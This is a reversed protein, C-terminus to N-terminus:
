ADASRTTFAQDDSLFELAQVLLAGKKPDSLLKRANEPSFPYVAGGFKFESWGLLRDVVFAINRDRVAAVSEEPATWKKGNVRAQEQEHERHLRERSMRNRQEITKEHGPGAFTWTWDSPKGKIVVTMTAEDSYDLDSLDFEKSM